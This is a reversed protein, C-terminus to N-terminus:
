DLAPLNFSLSISGAEDEKHNLPPQLSSPQFFALGKGQRGAKWKPLQQRFVSKGWLTTWTWRENRDQKEKDIKSSCYIDTCGLSCSDVNSHGTNQQSQVWHRETPKLQLLLSGHGNPFLPTETTHRIQAKNPWCILDVHTGQGKVLVTKRKEAESVSLELCSREWLTASTLTSSYDSVAEKSLLSGVLPKNTSNRTKLSVWQSTCWPLCVSMFDAREESISSWFSGQHLRRHQVTTGSNVSAHTFVNEM